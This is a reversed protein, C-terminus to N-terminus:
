GCSCQQAPARGKVEVAQPHWPSRSGRWSAGWGAQNPNPPAAGARGCSVTQRSGCCGGELSETEGIIDLTWHSSSLPTVSDPREPDLYLLDGMQFARTPKLWVDSLQTPLRSSPVRLALQALGAPGTPVVTWQSGHSM